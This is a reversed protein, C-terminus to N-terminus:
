QNLRKQISCDMCLGDQKICSDKSQERDCVLCLHINDQECFRCVKWDTQQEYFHFKINGNLQGVANQLNNYLSDM